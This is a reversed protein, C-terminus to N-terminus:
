STRTTIVTPSHAYPKCSLDGTDKREEIPAFRVKDKLEKSVKDRFSYYDSNDM